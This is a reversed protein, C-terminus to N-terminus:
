NNNSSTQCRIEAIEERSWLSMTLPKPDLSGMSYIRMDHDKLFAEIEFQSNEKETIFARLSGTDFLLVKKNPATEVRVDGDSDLNKKYFCSVTEAKLHFGCLFIFIGVLKIM